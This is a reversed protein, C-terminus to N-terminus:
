GSLCATLLADFANAVDHPAGLFRLGAMTGSVWVVEVELDTACALQLKSALRLTASEAAIPKDLQVKAGSVSLDLVACDVRHEGDVLCGSLLGLARTYARREAGPPLRTTDARLDGSM